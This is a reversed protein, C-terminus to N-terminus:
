ALKHPDHTLPMSVAFRFPPTRPVEPYFIKRPRAPPLPFCLWHNAEAQSQPGSAPLHQIRPRSPWSRLLRRQFKHRPFIHLSQFVELLLYTCGSGTDSKIADYLHVKRIPKWDLVAIACELGVVVSGDQCIHNSWKNPLTEELSAPVIDYGLLQRNRRSTSVGFIYFCNIDLKESCFSV